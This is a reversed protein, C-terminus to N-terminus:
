RPGGGILAPDSVVADIAQEIPIRVVGAGRDVWGFRELEREGTAKADAGGTAHEVLDHVLSSPQAAAPSGNPVRVLLWAVGTLAITSAVTAVGM